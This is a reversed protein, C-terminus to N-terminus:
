EAKKVKRATVAVVADREWLLCAAVAVPGGVLFWFVVRGTMKGLGGSSVSTAVSYLYGAWIVVAVHTSYIDWQFFHIALPALWDAPIRDVSNPDVTPPNWLSAPIFASSFDVQKLIASLALAYPSNDSVITHPVVAIALVGLHSVICITLVFKYVSSPVTTLSKAGKESPSILKFAWMLLSQWLPFANWFAIMIYHSSAPLFEPSPLSMMVAPVIFALTTCVPLLVTDAPDVAAAAALAVPEGGRKAVPSTFLHIILYTPVTLIYTITQFILGMTGTWSVAKGKSGKRLGELSLLCWSACFQAMLYWYSADMNWTRDGDIIAGWFAVLIALLGDVAAIGTYSSKFPQPGGPVYLDHRSLPDGTTKELSEFLGNKFGTAMTGYGGIAACAIIAVVVAARTAKQSKM